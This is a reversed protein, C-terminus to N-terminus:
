MRSPHSEETILTQITAALDIDLAKAIDLFEILDLRREGSEYKSVFQQRKGLKLALAGQSLKANTRALRLAEIASLYRGDHAVRKVVLSGYPHAQM